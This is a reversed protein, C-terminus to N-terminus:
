KYTVHFCLNDFFKQTLALDIQSHKIFYWEVQGVLKFHYTYLLLVM